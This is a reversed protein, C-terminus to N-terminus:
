LTKQWMGKKERKAKQQIKLLKDRHEFGSIGHPPLVHKPIDVPYGLVRAMGAEVLQEDLGRGNVIVYAFNRKMDSDGKADEWRTVVTFTGAAKLLATTFQSARKGMKMVEATPLGIERSQEAIRAKMARNHDSTEPCDVFYLRFIRERGNAIVHFSDGDNFPNNMLRCNDIKQWGRALLCSTQFATFLCVLLLFPLSKKM